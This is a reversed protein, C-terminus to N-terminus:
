AKGRTAHELIPVNSLLKSQHCWRPNDRSGNPNRIFEVLTSSM